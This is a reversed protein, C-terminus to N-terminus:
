EVVIKWIRKYSGENLHIPFVAQGSKVCDVVKPKELKSSMNIIWDNKIQWVPRGSEIM